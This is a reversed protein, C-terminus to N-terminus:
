IAIKSLFLKNVKFSFKFFSSLRYFSASHSLYQADNNEIRKNHVM